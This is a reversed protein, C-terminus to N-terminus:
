RGGFAVTSVSPVSMSSPFVFALSVPATFSPQGRGDIAMFTKTAQVSEGPRGTICDACYGYLTYAAGTNACWAQGVFTASVPWGGGAAEAPSWTFTMLGGYNLWGGAAPEWYQGSVPIGVANTGDAWCAAAALVLTCVVVMKWCRM